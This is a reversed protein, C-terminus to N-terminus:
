LLIGPIDHETSIRMQLSRANHRGVIEFGSASQQVRLIGHPKGSEQATCVTLIIHEVAEASQVEAFPHVGHESPLPLTGTRVALATTGHVSAQLHAHPRTIRFGTADAAVSGKGDSNDIQFRLQVSLPHDSLRIRDLLILIDPKVFLMSRLVRTVGPLVLRYAETADSTVFLDGKRDEYSEVHAEAWSANTGEHGDHYQHGKGDILVATHAGTLRLLWHPDTYSYAAKYPDHFLREGYAAFIVSNRDAHEHNAPGGSRLAAVSSRETWGTRGTVVDNSLRVNHLAAAPAKSRVTPDHWLIAYNSQVEGINTAVYQVLPDRRIGATWAAVATDGMTWADGFNICEKPRGITPMAMALAYRATGPFNILDRHDAGTRRYLVELALALHLSTYGWYGVGEDYSGDPGYMTAFARASQLAMDIWRQAQPHKGYLRCGAMMLGAVPIIKLNTSNLILPWRRLDFRYPYVDEPDFGWGRVREPYKMGYLTRYCAPAGKDAVQREIENRLDSPLATGLFELASVMAITAEPARQLGITHEGAELFYDWREYQLLRDIAHRALALQAPDETLAYVFATRELILRARLMHQAHNNLKLEDRLFATDAALDADRMSKWYAAFRPLTVTERMRRLDAPDFLLGRAKRERASEETGARAASLPLLSLGAAAVASEKLFVRRSPSM